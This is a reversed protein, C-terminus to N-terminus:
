IGLSSAEKEYGQIAEDRTSARMEITQRNAGPTVSRLVLGNPHAPSATQFWATSVSGPAEESSQEIKWARVAGDWSVVKFTQVAFRRGKTDYVNFHFIRGASLKERALVLNQTFRAILTHPIPVEVNEQQDFQNYEVNLKGKNYHFVGDITNIAPRPFGAKVSVAKQFFNAPRLDGGFEWWDRVANRIGKYDLLVFNQYQYPAGDGKTYQGRGFGARRGNISVTVWFVEPAPRYPGSAAPAAPHGAKPAAEAIPPQGSAASLTAVLLLLLLRRRM